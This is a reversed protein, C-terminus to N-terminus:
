CSMAPHSTEIITSWQFLLATWLLLAAREFAGGKKVMEERALHLRGKQGVQDGTQRERDSVRDRKTGQARIDNDAWPQDLNLIGAKPKGRPSPWDRVGQEVTMLSQM